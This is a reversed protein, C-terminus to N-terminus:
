PINDIIHMSCWMGVKSDGGNLNGFGTAHASWTALMARSEGAGAYRALVQRNSSVSGSFTSVLTDCAFNSCTTQAM